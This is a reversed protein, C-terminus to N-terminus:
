DHHTHAIIGGEIHQLHPLVVLIQNAKWLGSLQKDDM